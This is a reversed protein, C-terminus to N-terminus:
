APSTPPSLRRGSENMFVYNILGTDTRGATVWRRVDEPSVPTLAADALRAEYGQGWFFDFTAAFHPNIGEPYYEGLSIEMIWVPSPSRGATRRAGLLVQYEAGEVDIKIMIRKGAFREGLLADMTTVAITQRIRKSIGAWGRVLSASPGTAGYLPLSGPRDSLGLPHVETDKWGNSALNTYLYKLNRPQPEIAIAPKGLFRALCTYIGINAGVDVFIDNEKLLREIIETEREEYKGKLMKRDTAYAGGVLKYGRSSVGEKENTILYTNVWDRFVRVKRLGRRILIRFDPRRM